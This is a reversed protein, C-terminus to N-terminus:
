YSQELTRIVEFIVDLKQRAMQSKTKNAKEAVYKSLQDLEELTCRVRVINDYVRAAYLISLLHESISTDNALIEVQALMLSFTIREGLKLRKRKPGM